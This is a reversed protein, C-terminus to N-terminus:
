RHPAAMQTPRCRAARSTSSPPPAGEAASSRPRSAQPSRAVEPSAAPGDATAPVRAIVPETRTDRASDGAPDSHTMPHSRVQGADPQRDAVAGFEALQDGRRASGGALDADVATGVDCAPLVVAARGQDQAPARSLEEVQDGLDFVALQM